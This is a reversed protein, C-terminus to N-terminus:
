LDGGHMDVIEEGEENYKVEKDAAAGFEERTLKGDGDADMMKFTVRWTEIPGLTDKTHPHAHWAEIEDLTLLTDKDGHKHDIRDFLSTVQYAESVACFAFLMALLAYLIPTRCRCM